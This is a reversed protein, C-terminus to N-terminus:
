TASLRHDRRKVAREHLADPLDTLCKVLLLRLDVRQNTSGQRKQFRHLLVHADESYGSGPIRNIIAAARMGGILVDAQAVDGPCNLEIHEHERLQSLHLDPLM